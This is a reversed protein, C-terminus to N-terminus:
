LTRILSGSEKRLERKGNELELVIDNGIFKASKTKGNGISRVLSGSEKRLEIKGNVLTILILSYDSNINVDIANGNGISRILSGSEKRLEIKGSKIFVLAM